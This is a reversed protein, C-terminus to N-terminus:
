TMIAPPHISPHNRQHVLSPNSFSGTALNSTRKPTGHPSLPQQNGPTNGCPLRLFPLLLSFNQSAPGGSTRQRQLQIPAKM